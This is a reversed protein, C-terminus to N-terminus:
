RQSLPDDLDDCLVVVEKARRERTEVKRAVVGGEEEWRGCRCGEVWASPRRNKVKRRLWQVRCWRTSKSGCLSQIFEM